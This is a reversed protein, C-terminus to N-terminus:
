YRKSKTLASKSTFLLFMLLKVYRWTLERQRAPMFTTITIGRMVGFNFSEQRMMIRICRDITQGLIRPGPLGRSNSKTFRVHTPIKVDVLWSDGPHFIQSSRWRSFHLPGPFSHTTRWRPFYGSTMEALKGRGLIASRFTCRTVKKLAFINNKIGM